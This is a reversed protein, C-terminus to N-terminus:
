LEQHKVHALQDANFFILFFLTLRFIEDVVLGCLVLDIYMYLVGKRVYRLSLTARQDVLRDLSFITKAKKDEMECARNCSLHAVFKKKKKERSEWFANPYM